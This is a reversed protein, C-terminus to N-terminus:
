ATLGYYAGALLVVVWFITTFFAKFDFVNRGYVREPRFKRFM